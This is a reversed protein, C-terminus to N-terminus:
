CLTDIVLQTFEDVEGSLLENACYCVDLAFLVKPYNPNNPNNWLWERIDHLYKEVEPKTMKYYNKCQMSSCELKTLEM